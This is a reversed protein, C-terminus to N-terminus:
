QTFDFSDNRGLPRPNQTQEYTPKTKKKLQVM